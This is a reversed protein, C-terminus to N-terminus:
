RRALARGAHILLYRFVSVTDHPSTFYGLLGIVILAALVLYARSLAPMRACLSRHWTKGVGIWALVPNM